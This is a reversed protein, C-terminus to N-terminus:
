ARGAGRCAIRSHSSFGHSSRVPWSPEAGEQVEAALSKMGQMGDPSGDAAKGAIDALKPLSFM